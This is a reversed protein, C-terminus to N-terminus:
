GDHRDLATSAVTLVKHARERMGTTDNHVLGELGSEAEIIAVKYKKQALLTESLKIRSIATSRHDTGVSSILMDRGKRGFKEGEKLRNQLTLVEGLTTCCIGTLYHHSHIQQFVALARCLIAEAEIFNGQDRLIVGINHLTTGTHPHDSGLLQEHIALAKRFLQLADEQREMRQYLNALNHYSQATEPHMEGLMRERVELAQHHLRLSEEVNGILGAMTALETRTTATLPHNSGPSREHLKVARRLLEEAEGYRNQQRRIMALEVLRSGTQEPNIFEQVDLTDLYPLYYKEAEAYRGQDFLVMGLKIHLPYFDQYLNDASLTHQEIIDRYIQEAKKFSGLVKCAGALGTLLSQVEDTIVGDFERRIGEEYITMADRPRGAVTLFDGLVTFLRLHCKGVKCYTRVTTEYEKGVTEMKKVYRWYELLEYERGSELLKCVLDLNLLGQHLREIRNAKFWGWLEEVARRNNAPQSAFWGALRAHFSREKRLTPLWRNKVRRQMSAQHLRYTGDHHMLHYTLSRLLGLVLRSDYHLYDAIEDAGLGERAVVISSLVNCTVTKGHKEEVRDLIVDYIDEVEEAILFREILEKRQTTDTENRLEELGTRLWLPNGSNPSDSLLRVDNNTFSTRADQLYRRLVDSRQQRNLPSTSFNKWGQSSLDSCLVENECSVILRVNPPIHDPIWDRLSSYERKDVRDIADIVIILSQPRALWFPFDQIIQEPEEPVPNDIGMEERISLMLFRLLTVPNDSDASSGVFHQLLIEHERKRRNAGWWALVTSKGSGAGGSIYLKRSTKKGVFENILNITGADEVYSRIKTRAFAHNAARMRHLLIHSKGPRIDPTGSSM